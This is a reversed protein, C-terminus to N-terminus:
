TTGSLLREMKTELEKIRDEHSKIVVKQAEIRRHLEQTACVNLTFIYSKDLTHFDDIETGYIFIKNDTYETELEKIKFTLEDIVELVEINIVKNDKDYCKIKDNQKIIYNPQSPLTIISTTENYDTLLMINPIYSKQLSTAEPIVERIQQAIFGYVKNDGRTGAKDIYKYTKPEIVLIMQLASDDNIDQIDEKIRSDSSAVFMSGTGSAWISGSVKLSVNATTGTTNTLANGIDFYRRSVSGTSGTGAGIELRFDPANTGIGVNGNSAICMRETANTSFRMSTNEYNIIQAENASSKIMQFGRTGSATSTNDSLIMRVDTTVDNAHLHLMSFPSVTGIGVNGNSAICMRETGYTSFRMSTNEYNIIQAENATSKIMQFGRTGSATSTNDSLIMRVETTVDNAHLHLMSFPSVTGIGVNGTLSIRMREKGYGTGGTTGTYFLHADASYYEVGDDAIGFGYASTTTPTNGGGFGGFLAIKNCAYNAVGSGKYSNSFVLQDNVWANGQVQLKYSSQITATGIGVNGTSTICMRETANTHFRMSTNEYNMIRAENATSKIMQFGRSASATSTNDSLIMRVDTATANAHLHLMSFPSVTGIGVNGTNTICMRETANTSFRMSTNEYNIIRAENATSKIMQFGRSASATSTNDSLIMRVDTSTANAHLHLMSFPANTGIGIYGTSSIRMREVNSTSFTLPTNEYNIIQAENASSKIMQFGRTGSATSTNDSLIMRVDTTVDNAHLHLTSFPNVTGIGLNGASSIRMREKGYGTGGTTGTYWRHGSDVGAYYDLFGLGAGFGHVATTTPTNASGYFSIKNCAYEAGGNGGSGGSFGNNFVLQNEVWANGQVQLKYSSQITATGIGVNGKYFSIVPSTYDVNNTKQIVDYRVDNAAVLTQQFRLGNTTDYRMTLIDNTGATTNTATYTKSLTDASVNLNGQVQLKNTDSVPITGVGVNGADIISVNPALLNPSNLINFVGTATNEIRWDTAGDAATGYGSVGQILDINSSSCIIM